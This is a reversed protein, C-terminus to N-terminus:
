GLSPPPPPLASAGVVGRLATAHSERALGDFRGLGGLGGIEKSTSGESVSDSTTTRRQRRSPVAGASCARPPKAIVIAVIFLNM